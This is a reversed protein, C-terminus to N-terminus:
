ERSPVSMTEETDGDGEQPTGTARQRDRRRLEGVIIANAKRLPKRLGFARPKDMSVEVLGHLLALDRTSARRLANENMIVKALLLGYQALRKRAIVERVFGGVRKNRELAAQIEARVNQVKLYSLRFPDSPPVTTRVPTRPPFRSARCM